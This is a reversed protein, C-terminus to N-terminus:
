QDKGNTAAVRIRLTSPSISAPPQKVLYTAKIPKSNQRAAVFFRPSGRFWVSRDYHIKKLAETLDGKGPQYNGRRFFAKDSPLPQGGSIVELVKDKARDIEAQKNFRELELQTRGNEKLAKIDQLVSRLEAASMDQIGVAKLLQIERILEDPILADPNKTQFDAIKEAIDTQAQAYNGNINARITNLAKQAEYEFKANPFRGRTKIITGKLEGQIDKMLGVREVTNAEAKIRDIVELFQKDTKMNNIARIFKARSKQPLLDTYNIL